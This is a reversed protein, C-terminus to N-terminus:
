KVPPQQQQVPASLRPVDIIVLKMLATGMMGVGALVGTIVWRRLEKLGPLDREISQLREEHKGLAVSGDALQTQIHSQMTRIEALQRTETAIAQMTDNLRQIDGRLHELSAEIIRAEASTMM